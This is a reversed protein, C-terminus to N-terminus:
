KSLIAYLKKNEVIKAKYRLITNELGKRTQNNGDDPTTAHGFSKLIKQFTEKLEKYMKVDSAIEHLELAKLRAAQSEKSNYREITFMLSPSTTVSEVIPSFVLPKSPSQIETSLASDVRSTIGAGKSVFSFSLLLLCVSKKLM